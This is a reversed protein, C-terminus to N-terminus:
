YRGEELELAQHGVLHAPRVGGCEMVSQHNTRTRGAGGGMRACSSNGLPRSRAPARPWIYVRPRVGSFPPPVISLLLSEPLVLLNARVGGDVHMEEFRHGEREVNILV